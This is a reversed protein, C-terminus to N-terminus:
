ALLNLLVLFRGRRTRSGLVIIANLILGHGMVM